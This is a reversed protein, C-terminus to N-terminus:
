PGALVSSDTICCPTSADQHPTATNLQISHMLSSQITKDSLVPMSTADTLPYKLTRFYKFLAATAIPAVASVIGVPKHAPTIKGPRSSELPSRVLHQQVSLNEVHIRYEGVSLLSIMSQMVHCGRFEDVRHTIGDLKNEALGQVQM